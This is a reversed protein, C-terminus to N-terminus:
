EPRAEIGKQAAFWDAYGIFVDIPIPDIAGPDLGREEAYADLTHVGAADLHWERGSRLLMAAPMDRRWFGMPEGLVVTPIGLRRAEAATALGYPGAGIVLLPTHEPAAM